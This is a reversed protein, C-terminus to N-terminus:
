GDQGESETARAQGEALMEREKVLEAFVEDPDRGDARIIESRSRLGWKVEQASVAAEKQPDVAAFRPTVWEIVGAGAGGLWEKYIRDLVSIAVSQLGRYYAIDDLRGQRLSSYNAGSYDGALSAYSVGLGAAANALLERRMMQFQPGYGFSRGLELSTFSMGFPMLPHEGAVRPLKRRIAMEDVQSYSSADADEDVLDGPVYSEPLGFFGLTEASQRVNAIVKSEFDLLWNFADFAPLFASLGRRQGIMQRRYIHIIQSAPHRVGDILYAIPEGSESYEVGREIDILLPDILQLRLGGGNVLLIFAEGDRLYGALAERIIQALPEGAVGAAAALDDWRAAEADSNFRPAIGNAGLVENACLALFRQGYPCLVAIRRASRVILETAAVTQSGYGDGSAVGRLVALFGQASEAILADNYASLALSQAARVREAERRKVAFPEPQLAWALGSKVREFM